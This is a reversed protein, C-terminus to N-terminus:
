QIGLFEGTQTDFCIIKGGSKSDRTMAYKVAEIANKGHDMAALSFERGSGCSFIIGDQSDMFYQGEDVGVWYVRGDSFLFGSISGTIETKGRPSFEKAMYKCDVSSGCLFFIGKESKISKDISDSCIIGGGITERGDAAIYRGDYAITTM